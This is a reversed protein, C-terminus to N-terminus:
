IKIFFIKKELVIDEYIKIIFSKGVYLGPNQTSIFSLPFGPCCLICSKIIKSTNYKVRGARGQSKNYKPM